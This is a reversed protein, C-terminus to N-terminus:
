FGIVTSYKLTFGNMPIMHYLFGSKAAMVTLSQHGALDGACITRYDANVSSICVIEDKQSRYEHRAYSAANITAFLNVIASIDYTSLTRILDVIIPCCALPQISVLLISIVAQVPRPESVKTCEGMFPVANLNAYAASRGLATRKNNCDKM